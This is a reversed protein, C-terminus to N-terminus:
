AADAGQATATPAEPDPTPPLFDDASLKGGSAEILRGVLGLSPTQGGKEIRFISQRTTQAAKALEDMSLGTEARFQTLPHTM